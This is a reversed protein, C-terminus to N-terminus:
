NQSISLIHNKTKSKNERGGKTRCHRFNIGELDHGAAGLALHSVTSTGETLDYVRKMGMRVGEKIENINEHDINPSEM